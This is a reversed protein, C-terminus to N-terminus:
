AALLYYCCYQSLSRSSRSWVRIMVNELHRDGIGLLFTIVSYGALSKVYTDMVQYPLGSLHNREVRAVLGVWGRVM